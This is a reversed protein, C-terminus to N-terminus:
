TSALQSQLAPLMKAHESEIGALKARADVTGSRAESEMEECLRALALGGLNASGSKLTHLANQIAALDNREVAERLAVMLRTSDAVYLDVIRRLIDPAGPRQLARIQDLARQDLSAPEAAAASGARLWRQLTAEM